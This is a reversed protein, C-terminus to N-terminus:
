ELTKAGKDFILQSYKHPDIEPSEIINWQDIQRNKSGYCVAQTVTAKYHTKFDSLMLAGVENKKLITNVIKPRKGRCVFM